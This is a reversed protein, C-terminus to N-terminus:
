VTHRPSNLVVRTTDAVLRSQSLGNFITTFMAAVVEVARSYVPDGAIRSSLLTKQRPSSSTTISRSYLTVDDVSCATLLRQIHHM